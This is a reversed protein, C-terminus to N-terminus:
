VAHAVEGAHEIQVVAVSRGALSHRLRAPAQDKLVGDDDFVRPLYAIASTTMFNPPEDTPVVSRIMRTARRSIAARSAPSRTTATTEAIPSTVSSSSSSAAPMLSAGGSRSISMSSAVPSCTVIANSAIAM